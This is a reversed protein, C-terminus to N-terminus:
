RGTLAADIAQQLQQLSPEFIPKGEQDALLNNNLYVAPLSPIGLGDAADFSAQLADRQRGESICATVGQPDIQIQQAALSIEYDSYTPPPAQIRGYAEFQREWLNFLADHMRWFAGQESACYTAEAALRSDAQYLGSTFLLYEVLLVKGPRIYPDVLQLLTKHLRASSIDGFDLFVLLQVPAKEWDGLLAAKDISFAQPIGDYASRPGSVLTMLMIVVGVAVVGLIVLILTRTQEQRRRVDDALSPKESGTVEEM